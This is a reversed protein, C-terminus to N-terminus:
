KKLSDCTAQDFCYSSDSPLACCFTGGTCTANTTCTADANGTTTPTGADFGEFTCSSTSSSGSQPSCAQFAQQQEATITTSEGNACRFVTSGNAGEEYTFTEGSPVKYVVSQATGAAANVTVTLCTAGSTGIYVFGNADGPNSTVKAGNAYTIAFGTGNGGASVTCAGAPQFCTGIAAGLKAACGSAFANTVADCSSSRGNTGTFVEKEVDWRGIDACRADGVTPPVSTDAGGSHIARAEGGGSKHYAAVSVDSDKKVAICFRGAADTSAESTGLYSTGASVVRAGELVGGGKEYVTGCACTALYRQDCNWVSMHQASAVYTRTAAEYTASGEDVWVGTTENFSWLPMTAAPSATSAPAPIHLELKKGPAVQLKEDGRRITIDVMGFSELMTPQGAQSAQFDGPAARLENANSPDIPTLSVQVTGTVPAGARDVLANAPVVVKAGRTTAVEGGITANIPTPTGTSLLIADLQTSTTAGVVLRELGDAFGTKVFRIVATETVSKLTYTGQADTTASASGASVTAGEIPAGGAATVKGHVQPGTAVSSATSNSSSSCAYLAASILGLVVLHRQLRTRIM